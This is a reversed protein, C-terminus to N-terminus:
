YVANSRNLKPPHSYYSCRTKCRRYRYRSFRATPNGPMEAETRRYVITVEKAGKRITSHACDVATDGGGIVAVKAGVFPLDQKSEPLLDQPLNTRILFDTSKYVHPLKEGPIDMM